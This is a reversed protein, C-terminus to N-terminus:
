PSAYPLPVPGITTIVWCPWSVSPARLRALLASIGVAREAAGHEDHGTVFDGALLVLDPHAANVQEVIAVLRGADMARNGFHIDSLLAVKLARAGSPFGRLQVEAQRMIPKVVANSAGIQLLVVIALLSLALGGAVWRRIAGTPIRSKLSM